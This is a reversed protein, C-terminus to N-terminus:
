LIDVRTSMNQPEILTFVGTVLTSFKLGLRPILELFRTQFQTALSCLSAPRYSLGIGVQNRVLTVSVTSSNKFLRQPSPVSYSYIQRVPGWANTGQFRNKSEKFTCLCLIKKLYKKQLFRIRISELAQLLINKFIVNLEVSINSKLVNRSMRLWRHFWKRTHEGTIFQTRRIRLCRYFKNGM